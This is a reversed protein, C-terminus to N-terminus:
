TQHYQSGSQLARQRFFLQPLKRTNESQGGSRQHLTGRRTKASPERAKAGTEGRRKEAAAAAAAAYSRMDGFVVGFM